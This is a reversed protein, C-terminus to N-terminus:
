EEERDRITEMIMDNVYGGVGFAPIIRFARGACVSPYREVIYRLRSALTEQPRAYLDLAPVM